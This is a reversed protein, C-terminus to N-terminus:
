LVTGVEHNAWQCHVLAPRGLATSHLRGELATIDIHASADVPIVETPALRSSTERVASHEVDAFLVPAGPSRRTAGWVAANIAETGGSTFVVQRPTTGVLAAVQQRAEELADRVTRGEEHLRGPDATPLSTWRTLAALAEPRPPTTSAHDLYARKV